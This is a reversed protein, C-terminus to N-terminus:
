GGRWRKSTFRRSVSGRSADGLIREGSRRISAIYLAEKESARLVKTWHMERSVLM